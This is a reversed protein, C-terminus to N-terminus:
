YMKLVLIYFHSGWGALSIMRANKIIHKLKYLNEFVMNEGHIVEERCIFCRLNCRTTLNLRITSPYQHKPFWGYPLLLFLRDPSFLEYYKKASRYISHSLFQKTFKTVALINFNRKFCNLM